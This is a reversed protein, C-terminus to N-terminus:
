TAATQEPNAHLTFNFGFLGDSYLVSTDARAECVSHNTDIAAPM